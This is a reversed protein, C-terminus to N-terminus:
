NGGKRLAASEAMFALLEKYRFGSGRFAELGGAITDGDRTEEMRGFAYRFLQKVMCAHCEASRALVEGLGKPTSFASDRTGSVVGSTDLDVVVKAPTQDKARRDPFFLITQKERYRGIADYKEFGFGIPDMLTHCGACTANEVHVKLRERNTQPREPTVLPLNSNTGPPPDPVQQCLFQERVYYGRVTPSTDGPKSTLTLFSGHGLVGARGSDAPFDVRAFESPPAAVKYLAALDSNLFSYNATLVDMFNRGNWVNDAILRRTEETMSIALEPTFQPYLSRDRVAALALDFRLWQSVFQDLSEKAHPHDLMRRVAQNIGERTSLAGSEEANFLLDDPMTDWLFYSLRAAPGDFRFLFKPSQLMAEIVAQAGGIFSGTRRAEKLLLTQYRQLEPGTLSHRLARRGFARIFQAACASDAANRPKCPILHNADQGGQFANRALREAASDYAEALVPPIDQASAQNKFGHVFDETPFNDAPLTQDGLLDRVTNNYQSHTLRRIAAPSILAAIAFLVLLRRM